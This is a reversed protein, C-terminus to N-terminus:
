KSSKSKGKAKRNPDHQWCYRSGAQAKRKCQDGDATKAICRESAPVAAAGKKAEGKVEGKVAGKAAGKTTQASVASLSLM